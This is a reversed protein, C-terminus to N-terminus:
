ASVLALFPSGVVWFCLPVTTLTVRAPWVQDFTGRSPGGGIAIGSTAAFACVFVTLRFLLVRDTVQSSLTVLYDRKRSVIVVPFAM